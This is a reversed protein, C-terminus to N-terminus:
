AAVAEEYVFEEGILKHHVCEARAFAVAEDQTPFFHSYAMEDDRFKENGTIFVVFPKGAKVMLSTEQKSLVVMVARQVCPRKMDEYLYGCFGKRRDYSILQRFRVDPPTNTVTLVEHM